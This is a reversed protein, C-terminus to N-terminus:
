KTFRLADGLENTTQIGGRQNLPILYWHFQHEEIEYELQKRFLDYNLQDAPTLAARDMRKMEELVAEHHQHRAEIAQLSVDTWRDNWRRDGLESAWTPNQQTQWDWERDFLAHLATAPSQQAVALVPAFMVLFFIIGRM